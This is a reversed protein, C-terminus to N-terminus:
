KKAPEAPPPVMPPLDTNFIDAAVKWQGGAQKKWVEVYKGVDNVPKGAPDNFTMKFSGRVYALDGSKAVEVKNPAFSLSVGPLAMLGAVVKRIEAPGTAIPSHQGLLAGDEAYYSVFKDVDKAQAAQSWEADLKRLTAEEAALDVTPQPSCSALLLLSGLLYRLPKM